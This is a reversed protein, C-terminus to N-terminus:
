LSPALKEFSVKFELEANRDSVNMAKYYKLGPIRLPIAMMGSQMTFYMFALKEIQTDGPVDALMKDLYPYSQTDITILYNWAINLVYQVCYVFM